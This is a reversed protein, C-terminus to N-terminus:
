AGVRQSRLRRSPDFCMYWSATTSRKLRWQLLGFVSTM